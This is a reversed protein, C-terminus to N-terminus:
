RPAHATLTRAPRQPASDLRRASIERESTDLLARDGRAAMYATAIVLLTM